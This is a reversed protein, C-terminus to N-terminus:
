MSLNEYLLDGKINMCGQPYANNFDEYQEQLFSAKSLHPWNCTDTSPSVHPQPLPAPVPSHNAQRSCLLPIALHFRLYRTSWPLEAWWCLHNNGVWLGLGDRIKDVTMLPTSNSWSVSSQRSATVMDKLHQFVLICIWATSLNLKLDQPLGLFHWFPRWHCVLGVCPGRFAFFKMTIWPEGSSPARSSKTVFRLVTTLVWVLRQVEGGGTQRELM